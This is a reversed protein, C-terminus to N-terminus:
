VNKYKRYCIFSIIIAVICLFIGTGMIARGTYPLRKVNTSTNKVSKSENSTDKTQSSSSSSASGSGSSEGSNSDTGSSSSIGKGADAQTGSNTGGQTGTSSQAGSGSNTGSGTGTDTNTAKTIAIDQSIEELQIVSADEKAVQIGILKITKTTPEVGDKVKLKITCIDGKQTTGEYNQTLITFLNETRTLTWGTVANASSFDFVNEDYELSFGVGSIAENIETASVVISVEDGPKQNNPSFSAKITCVTAAFSNTVYILNLMVFFITLIVLFKKRM